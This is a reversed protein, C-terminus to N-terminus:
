VVEKGKDKNIYNQAQQYTAKNITNKNYLALLLSKRIEKQITGNNM